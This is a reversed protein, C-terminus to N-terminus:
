QLLKKSIVGWGIVDDSEVWEDPSSTQQLFVNPLKSRWPIPNEIKEFNRILFDRYACLTGIVRDPCGVTQGNDLDVSILNENYYFRDNRPPTFDFHTPHYLTGIQCLFVIDTDMKKLSEIVQKADLPSSTIPLSRASKVLQKETSYQVLNDTRERGCLLIGKEFSWEPVPAFRDILWRLPRVMGEWNGDVWLWRSHERAPEPDPAPYPFMFGQQTRFLHAFWARKNVVQRGGSLWSKCAIEVGMQGWSGHREDLGGLEWFRRREMLYCAGLSTMLDCIDGKAEPRKKYERWYQFRLERDFRMFDTEPNRKEKWVIVKEYDISGCSCMGPTPGQYKIKGCLVCKWDFGHLNYMRPVITCDSDAGKILEVDFGESVACHADLKMIYKATSLAAAKNVSARQGISQPNEIITLRSDEPLPSVAPEGDLVVIIETNGRINKLLDEVTYTLFEENRAPILISIDRKSVSGGKM